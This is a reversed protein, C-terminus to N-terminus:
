IGSAADASANYDTAPPTGPSIPIAVRNGLPPESSHPPAIAVPWFSPAPSVDRSTIGPPTKRVWASLALARQQQTRLADCEARYATLLQRHRALDYSWDGAAGRQRERRLVSALRGVLARRGDVSIDALDEPWLPLLRPLDRTRDYTPAPTAGRRLLAPAVPPSSTRSPNKQM